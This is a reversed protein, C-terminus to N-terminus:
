VLLGEKQLTKRLKERLRFLRVSIRNVPLQMVAAIERVSDAYWYRRVFLFRDDYGLSALFRNIAEALEKAEYETEVDVRSPICEELEELVLDFGSNRKAAASSRLKSVALNRAIRCVYSGLFDPRQPPINSWVRLYTDNACEEVDLRDRLLNAATKKVAAGYKKDLEGVAQESREFFLGIIESDEM